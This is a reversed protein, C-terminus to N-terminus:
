VSSHIPLMGMRLAETLEANVQDRTKGQITAKAPYVSPFLGNMKLGSEGDVFIEGTRVAEALEAQVQARTKGQVVAKAPYRSPFLENMKLGSEGDVFIDGTRVAEALEAQVQARTLPASTDAAMAYGSALAAVALTISSLISRNM